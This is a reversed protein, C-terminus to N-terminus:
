MGFVVRAWGLRPTWPLAWSEAWGPPCSTPPCRRPASASTHESSEAARAPAPLLSVSATLGTRHLQPVPLGENGMPGADVELSPASKVSQSVCPPAAWFEGFTPPPCPPGWPDPYPHPCSPPTWVGAMDHAMFGAWAWSWGLGRLTGSCGSWLGTPFLPHTAPGPPHSRLCGRGQSLLRWGRVWFLLWRCEPFSFPIHQITHSPSEQGQVEFLRVVGLRVSPCLLHGLGFGMDWQWPIFKQSETMRFNEGLTVIIIIKHDVKMRCSKPAM